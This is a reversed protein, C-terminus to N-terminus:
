PNMSRLEAATHGARRNIALSCWARCRIGAFRKAMLAHVAGVVGFFVAMLFLGASDSLDTDRSPSVLLAGIAATAAVAFWTYQGIIM